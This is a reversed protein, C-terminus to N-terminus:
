TINIRPMIADHWERKVTSEIATIKGARLTFKLDISLPKYVPNSCISLIDAIYSTTVKQFNVSDVDEVIRLVRQPVAAQTWIHNSERIREQVLISFEKMYTCKSFDCDCGTCAKNMAGSFVVDATEYLRYLVLDWQEKTIDSRCLRNEVLILRIEDLKGDETVVHDALAKNTVTLMDKTDTIKEYITDVRKERSAMDRFYLVILFLVLADHIAADKIWAIVDLINM